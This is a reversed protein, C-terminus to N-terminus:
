KCMDIYAQADEPGILQKLKVFHPDAIFDNDTHGCGIGGRGVLSKMGVCLDMGSFLIFKHKYRHAVGWLHLDFYQEGSHVAREFHPLYSKRFATQCTSAHGHNGMEKFGRPSKLSYYTVGCTGLLDCHKLFELYVELYQSRYYDDNEIIFVYEGKVLPIAAALNYRLTNLGPKFQLAGFIHEQDLTCKVPDHKNDDAVIWQIPIKGWISQRKMYKETLAFSEHRGGGPTILTILPSTM